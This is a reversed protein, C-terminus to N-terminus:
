GGLSYAIIQCRDNSGGLCDPNVPHTLQLGQSQLEDYTFINGDFPACNDCLSKDVVASYLYTEIKGKLDFLTEGRGNTYGAEVETILDRRDYAFGSELELIYNELGGKKEIYKDNVKSMNTEIRTKINTYFKNVLKDINNKAEKKGSNDLALEINKSLKGVEKKVDSEGRNYGEEYLGILKKILEGQYRMDINAKRNRKLQGVIDLFLKHIVGDIENTVKDQTTLFHETASQLEFINSEFELIEPKINRAKEKHAMSMQNEPKIDQGTGQNEDVLTQKDTKINTETAPLNLHERIMNWDVDTLPMGAEFFLKYVEAERKMDSQTVSSFRIIPYDEKVMPALYSINIFYDALDQYNRSLDTNIYNLALEYPAKHQETAARSGSEGIGAVLFQSMTNYFKMRNIFQILPMIDQQGKLENLVVKAKTADIMYYGNSMSAITRGVKEMDTKAKGQLTGQTEIGIIGAGRQTAVVKSELIKQAAIYYYRVPRLISQGRIDDADENFTYWHLKKAEIPILTEVAAGFEKEKANEIRRRKHEIWLLNNVDDLEIRNITDNGIYSLKIIRNTLKNFEKGDQLYNYKDGKKEICEHFSVGSWIAKLKHKRLYSEKRNLNDFCWRLYDAAEKSRDSKSPGVDINLKAQMLPYEILKWTTSIVPCGNMMNVYDQQLEFWDKTDWDSHEIEGASATIGSNTQQERKIIEDDPQENYKPM